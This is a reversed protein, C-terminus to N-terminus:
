RRDCNQRHGVNWTEDLAGMSSRPEAMLEEPVEFSGLNEDMEDVDRACAPAIRDIIEVGHALLEFQKLRSQRGFRLDHGGVFDVRTSSADRTVARSRCADSSSKGKKRMEPTVPSPMEIEAQLSTAPSQRDFSLDGRAALVHRAPAYPDQTAREIWDM